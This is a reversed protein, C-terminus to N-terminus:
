LAAPNTKFTVLLQNLADVWSDVERTVALELDLSSREGQVTFCNKAEPTPGFLRPKHGEGTGKKVAVITRLDMAGQKAKSSPNQWVVSRFDSSILVHCSSKSGGNWVNMLKGAALMTRVEKLPDSTVDGSAGAKKRKSADKAAKATIKASKNLNDLAQMSLVASKGARQIELDKPYSALITEILELGGEDQVLQATERSSMSLSDLTKVQSSTLPISDEKLCVM